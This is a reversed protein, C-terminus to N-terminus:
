YKELSKKGHFPTTRTRLSDADKLRKREKRTLNRVLMRDAYIVAAQDAALQYTSGTAKSVIEVKGRLVAFTTENVEPSAIVNAMFRTGRVAAFATPTELQFRSKPPMKEFRLIMGGQNLRVSQDRLDISTLTISSKGLIRCGWFGGWVVDVECLPQTVITDNLLCQDGRSIKLSTTDREISAKGTVRSVVIEPAESFVGGSLLLLPVVVFVFVSPFKLRNVEKIEM